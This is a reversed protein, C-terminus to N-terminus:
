PWEFFWDITCCNVLSPFMRVRTRFGDGIPSFALVVHLNQKCREVFFGYLQEPTGEPAKGSVRADARVMEMVEAKEDPPFLNPVECTNLLNNIDEVFSEQKIQSDTFLFVTPIGKGGASKLVKKIDEHWEVTGYQKSIEIQITKYENM